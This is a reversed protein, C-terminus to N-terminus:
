TESQILRSRLQTQQSDTVGCVRLYDTITGYQLKIYDLMRLMTAPESAIDREFHQMDQGNQVAYERWQEILHTIKLKSLSYDKAIIHDPVGVSGLLLAVIIGTRDKGAYCQIVITPTSEAITTIIARIQTQCRDLYTCYLEDLLDYNETEQKWTESNSLHNGILPLNLYKVATSQTFVNPFQQVEWEDRLDIVTKVGYDILQQQSTPPIQDLNGARIFAGKATKVDDNISYGGLDRINYAGEIALHYTM